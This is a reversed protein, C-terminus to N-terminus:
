SLMQIRKRIEELKAHAIDESLKAQSLAFYSNKIDLEIDFIKDETVREESQMQYFQKDM